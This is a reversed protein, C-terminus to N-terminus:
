GDQFGRVSGAEAKFIQFEVHQPFGIAVAGVTQGDDIEVLDVDAFDNGSGAGFQDFHLRVANADFNDIGALFKVHGMSFRVPAAAGWRHVACWYGNDNGGKVLQRIAPGADVRQPSACRTFVAEDEHVVTRGIADPRKEIGDFVGRHNVCPFIEAKRAAHIVAKGVGVSMYDKQVAIRQERGSPQIAEFGSKKARVVDAHGAGHAIAGGTRLVNVSEGQVVFGGDVGKGFFPRLPVSAADAIDVAQHSEAHHDAFHGEPADAHEILAEADAIELVVVVAGANPFFSEAEHNGLVTEHKMVASAGKLAHSEGAVGELLEKGFVALAELFFPAHV